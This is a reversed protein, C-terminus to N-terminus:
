TKPYSRSITPVLDSRRNELDWVAVTESIKFVKSPSFVRQSFYLYKYKYIQLNQIFDVDINLLETM